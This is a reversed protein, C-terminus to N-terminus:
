AFLQCNEFHEKLYELAGACAGGEKAMALADMEHDSESQLARRYEASDQEWKIRDRPMAAVHKIAYGLSEVASDSLYDMDVPQNASFLENSFSIPKAAQLMGVTPCVDQDGRAIRLLDYIDSPAPGFPFAIIADDYLPTAWEVFHHQQAFYATQLIDYVNRRNEAAHHLIYLVVAQLERMRQGNLDKAKNYIM